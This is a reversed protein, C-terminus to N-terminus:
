YSGHAHKSDENGETSMKWFIEFKKIESFIKCPM